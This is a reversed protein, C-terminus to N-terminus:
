NLSNSTKPKYSNNVQNTNHSTDYSINNVPNNNQPAPLTLDLKPLDKITNQEYYAQSFCTPTYFTLIFLMISISTLIKNFRNKM